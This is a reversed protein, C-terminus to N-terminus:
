NTSEAMSSASERSFSVFSFSRFKCATLCIEKETIAMYTKTNMSLEVHIPSFNDLSTQNKLSLILFNMQAIWHKHLQKTSEIKVNTEHDPFQDNKCFRIQSFFCTALWFLSTCNASKTSLSNKPSCTFQLEM